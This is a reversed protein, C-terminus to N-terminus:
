AFIFPDPFTQLARSLHTRSAYVFLHHLFLCLSSLLDERPEIVRLETCKGLKGMSVNTKLFLILRLPTFGMTQYTFEFQM